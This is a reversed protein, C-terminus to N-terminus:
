MASLRCVYRPGNPDSCTPELLYGQSRIAQLLKACDGESPHLMIIMISPKLGLQFLQPLLEFEGGECNCKVLLPTENRILSEVRATKVVIQNSTVTPSSSLRNGWSGEESRFFSTSGDDHGIAVPSIVSRSLLSNSVLNKMLLSLSSPDPEVALLRCHPFRKLAAVAFIGHHAGVDLILSHNPLVVDHPFYLANFDILVDLLIVEDLLDSSLNYRGWGNIFVQSQLLAIPGFLQRLAVLLAFRITQSSSASTRSGLRLASLAADISNYAKTKFYSFFPFLGIIKKTQSLRWSLQIM